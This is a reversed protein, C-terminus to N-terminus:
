DKHDRIIAALLHAIGALMLTILIFVITNYLRRPELPYQPETPSQLMSVKKLTRSAEIRGKELASLATKYLEQAFEADMQLRQYEEAVSNLKKGRPSMLHGKEREVQKEVAEIQQELEVVNPSSPMLYGLLASRRTQLESLQGELRSIISVFNEVTGQPSVMGNNNQFSLMAQRAEKANRNMENVQTELFAVQDKALNHAMENMHREGEEVMTVAIDHAMKADYAQAKIILVGAYDDFEVSIRSLFHNYFNELPTDKFWMRSVPDRGWDSYHARLDLKADLKLLMDVSRLHDRLLMQDARNGGSGLISSFDAGQGPSIDTKQIIVHAESVYRDSAVLGWYLAALLSAVLAAGLIRHRMLGPILKGRIWVVATSIDMGNGSQHIQQMM